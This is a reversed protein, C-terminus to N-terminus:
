VHKNSSPAVVHKHPPVPVQPPEGARLSALGVLQQQRERTQATHPKEPHALPLHKCCRRLPKGQIQLLPPSASHLPSFSHPSLLCSVSDRGERGTHNTHDIHPQPSVGIPDSEGAVVATAQQKKTEAKKCGDVREKYVATYLVTEIYIYM